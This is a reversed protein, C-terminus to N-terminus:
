LLRKLYAIRGRLEMFGERQNSDLRVKDLLNLHEEAKTIQNLGLYLNAIKIRVEHSEPRLLLTNEWAIIADHHKDRRMLTEGLFNFAAAKNDTTPWTPNATASLLIKETYQYNLEMRLSNKALLFIQAASFPTIPYNSLRREIEKVLAEQPEIKMMYVSIIFENIPYAADGPNFEAAKRYSIIAEQYQQSRYQMLALGSWARPSEPNNAIEESYFSNWSSWQIVRDKLQWSIFFLIVAMIVLKIYRNMSNPFIRQHTIYYGMIFLPGYSPLYNRHEFIIQLRIVTSELLHGALYWLIGFSLIPFRNKWVGYIGLLIFLLIGIVSFLTTYPSIISRSLEFNDHFLSMLGTDPFLILRLYFFLVRTETLLREMITFGWHHDYRSTISYIVLYIFIAVSPLILIGSVWYRFYPKIGAHIKFRFLFGEIVLLLLPLLVGNEKSFIALAGGLGVALTIWWIGSTNGRILNNRGKIYAIAAYICFLSALENMRQVSYLVTSVHLPHLAWLATIFMAVWKVQGNEPSNNSLMLLTLLFIGTINFLHILINTLKISFPDTNGALYYNFAFSAM